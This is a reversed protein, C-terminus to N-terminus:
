ELLENLHKVAQIYFVPVILLLAPPLYLGLGLIVLQPLSIQAPYAAYKALIFVIISVFGLLQVVLLAQLSQSFFIALVLLVPASLISLYFVAIKAKEFIFRPSKMNFSWVFFENEPNLYFSLSLLFILILAFVGLNFNGYLVSMLTIFYAFILLFYTNRFGVTFEFPKRSFPTPIVIGDKKQISILALAASFVLAIISHFFESRIALFLIFPVVVIFNESFRIWRYSSTPFNFKLFDNRKKESLVTCFSLAIFVYISNANETKSFLLMSVFVFIAPLLIIAVIPHIGFDFLQRKVLQIRLSFYAKIM